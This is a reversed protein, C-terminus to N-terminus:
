LQHSKYTHKILQPGTKPKQLSVWFFLRLQDVVAM